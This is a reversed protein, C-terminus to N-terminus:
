FYHCANYINNQASALNCVSAGLVYGGLYKLTNDIMVRLLLIQVWRVELCNLTLFAM